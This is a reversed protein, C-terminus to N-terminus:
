LCCFCKKIKKEISREKIEEKIEINKNKETNNKSDNKNESCLSNRKNSKNNTNKEINNINNIIISKFTILKNDLDKLTKTSYSKNKIHNKLNINQNNKHSKERNRKEIFKKLEELGSYKRDDNKSKKKKKKKISHDDYLYSKAPSRLKKGSSKASSKASSLFSNRIDEKILPFDGYISLAKSSNKSMKKAGIFQQGVKLFKIGQYKKHKDEM